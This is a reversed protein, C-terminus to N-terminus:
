IVEVSGGAAEVKAKAGKSMGSLRVTLPHDIQGNALLKVGDNKGKVLGARMLAAEDVVSGSEFRNLDRINVAAIRKKFINTFGRKPLRRHLPM